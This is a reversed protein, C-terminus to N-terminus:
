NGGLQLEAIFKTCRSVPTLNIYGSVIKGEHLLLPANQLASCHTEWAERERPYFSIRFMGGCGAAVYRRSLFVALMGMTYRFNIEVFPQIYYEGRFNRCVMMDVGLPGSYCRSVCELLVRRVGAKVRNFTEDGVKERLRAELNERSGIANGLYEGKGGTYFLSIGQEELQGQGDAYFEWAFDYVKDLLPEVIVYGQRCLVGKLWEVGKGSIGEEGVRLQGKGSSSWPAKVVSEGKRICRNIEALSRCVEPLNNESGVPFLTYYRRLCRLATLRSFFFKWEEQWKATRLIRDMKPSWGWPEPRYGEPGAYDASLQLRPALGFIKKREEIFAGDPYREMLLIDQGDSFYAPLYSLEETMRVINAPPTYFPNGNAVAMESDPNFYLIRPM